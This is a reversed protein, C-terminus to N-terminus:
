REKIGALKRQVEPKALSIAYQEPTVGAIRAHAVMEPTLDAQMEGGRGVRLGIGAQRKNVAAGGGTPRRYQGSGERAPRRPEPEEDEEQRMERRSRPEPEDDEEDGARPVLTPHDAIKEGPFEEKLGDTIAAFYDASDVARKGHKAIYDEHLELAARWMEPDERVKPNAEVYAQTAATMGADTKREVPAPRSKAIAERQVKQQEFSRVDVAAVAIDASAAAEKAADGAERAAAFDATAKELRGKAGAGWHEFAAQDLGIATNSVEALKGETERLRATTARLENRTQHLATSLNGNSRRDDTGSHRGRDRAAPRAERRIAGPDPDLDVPVQTGRPLAVVGGGDSRPTFVPAKPADEGHTLRPM